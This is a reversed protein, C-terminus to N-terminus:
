GGVGPGAEDAVLHKSLINNVQQVMDWYEVEAAMRAKLKSNGAMKEQLERLKHKEAVEIPKGEQQKRALSELHSQYDKLLAQAASDKGSEQQAQKFDRVAKSQAMAAGLKEALEAITADLM